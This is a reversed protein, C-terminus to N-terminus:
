AKVKFKFGTKAIRCAVAALAGILIATASFLQAYLYVGDDEQILAGEIAPGMLSAVGVITLIMGLRTGTREISPTMTTATAPFLSQLAAAIIGYVVAFVYLEAAKSIAAWCYALLSAAFSLLILINLMGAVRDGIVGPLIRGVIGVGNLVMTLNLSNSIGIRDRAFTGLYFFAFYLGWFNFFMSITFFIFPLEKFASWDIVPGAARPPRYPKFLLVYPIQTALMIFGMVRVTWPFGIADQYLLRDGVVPYILGGVAAGAAAIGVALARNRSFYSSMVPLGSCFTCGNGLGMCVAQALMIQWYTKCLSMMFVGVLRLLVGLVFVHRFFGADTLRGVFIGVFLLLAVQVGGIWSIGSPTQPLAETYFQQFVGFSNSM